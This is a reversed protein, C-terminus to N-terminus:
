RVCPRAVHTDIFEKFYKSYCPVGYIDMMRHDNGKFPLEEWLDSLKRKYMLLESRDIPMATTTTTTTKTPTSKDTKTTANRLSKVPASAKRPISPPPGIVKLKYKNPMRSYIKVPYKKALELAEPYVESFKEEYVKRILKLDNFGLKRATELILSLPEVIEMVTSVWWGAPITKPFFLFERGNRPLTIPGDPNSKKDKDSPGCCRSTFYSFFKCVKDMTGLDPRTAKLMEEFPGNLSALLQDLGVLKLGHDHDIQQLRGELRCLIYTVRAPIKLKPRLALQLALDDLTEVLKEGLIQIPSGLSLAARNIRLFRLFAEVIECAYLRTPWSALALPLLLLILVRLFSAFIWAM